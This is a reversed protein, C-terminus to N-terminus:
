IEIGWNLEDSVQKLLKENKCSDRFGQFLNTSKALYWKEIEEFDFDFDFDFDENEFDSNLIKELKDKPEGIFCKAVFDVTKVLFIFENITFAIEIEKIKLCKERFNNYYEINM